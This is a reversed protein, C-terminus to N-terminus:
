EGAISKILTENRLGVENLTDQLLPYANFLELSDLIQKNSGVLLSLIAEEFVEEYNNNSGAAVLTSDTDENEERSLESKSFGGDLNKKAWSNIDSVNTLAVSRVNAALNQTDRRADESKIGLEAVRAIESQQAVIKALDPRITPTSFLISIAIFILTILILLGGGAILIRKKKAASEDVPAYAVPAQNGYNQEPGM